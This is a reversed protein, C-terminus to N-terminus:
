LQEKGTENTKETKIRLNPMIGNKILTQEIEGARDSHGCIRLADSFWLSLLSPEKLYPEVRGLVAEAQVRYNNEYLAVALLSLNQVMENQSLMNNQLLTDMEIQMANVYKETWERSAASSILEHYNITLKANISESAVRFIESFCKVFLEQKDAALYYKLLEFRLLNYAGDYEYDAVAREVQSIQDKVMQADCSVAMLHTKSSEYLPEDEIFAGDSLWPTLFRLIKSDKSDEVELGARIDKFFPESISQDALQYAILWQYYRVSMDKQGSAQCAQAIIRWAKLDSADIQPKLKEIVESHQLQGAEAQYKVLSLLLAYDKQALGPTQAAKKLIDDITSESMGNAFVLQAYVDAFKQFDSREPIMAQWYRAYEAALAPQRSLVQYMDLRGAALAQTKQKQGEIGEPSDWDPWPPAFFRGESRLDAQYKRFYRVLNPIDGAEQYSILYNLGHLPTTDQAAAKIMQEQQGTQYYLRVLTRWQFVANLGSKNVNAYLIEALEKRYGAADYMDVLQHLVIANDAARQFCQRMQLRAQQYEGIAEYLKAMTFYLQPSPGAIDRYSILESLIDRIDSSKLITVMDKIIAAYEHNIEEGRALTDIMDGALSSAEKQKGVRFRATAVFANVAPNDPMNGMLSEAMDLLLLRTETNRGDYRTLIVYQTKPPIKIPPQLQFLEVYKKRDSETIHYRIQGALEMLFLQRRAPPTSDVAQLIITNRQNPDSYFLIEALRDAKKDKDQSFQYARQLPYYEQERSHVMAMDLLHLVDADQSCIEELRNALWKRDPGTLRPWISALLSRVASFRSSSSMGALCTMRKSVVSKITDTSELLIAAALETTYLEDRSECKRTLMADMLRGAQERNDALVADMLNRALLEDSLSRVNSMDQQNHRVKKLDQPWSAKDIKEALEFATDYDGGAIRTQITETMAEPNNTVQEAIQKLTSNARLIGDTALCLRDYDRWLRLLKGNSSAAGEQLNARNETM